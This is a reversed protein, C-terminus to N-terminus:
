RTKPVLSRPEKADDPNCGKRERITVQRKKRSPLNNSQVRVFGQENFGVNEEEGCSHVLPTVTLLSLVLLLVGFCCWQQM